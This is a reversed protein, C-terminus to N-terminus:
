LGHGWNALLIGLDPQTCTGDRDIDFAHRHEMTLIADGDALGDNDGDIPARTEASIVSDHITITYEDDLLVEGFAIIMFQSNSGSVSFLVPEDDENTITFDDNDLLVRESWLLRLSDVGLQGTHVDDGEVSPECMAITPGVESTVARIRYVGTQDSVFMHEGDDSISVLGVDYFGSAFVGHEGDSDVTMVTDTVGDTVYLV